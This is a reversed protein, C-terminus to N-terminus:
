YRALGERSAPAISPEAQYLSLFSFLLIGSLFHMVAPRPCPHILHLPLHTHTNDWYKFLHGLLLFVSPITYPSFGGLISCPHHFLSSLTIGLCSPSLYSLNLHLSFAQPGYGTTPSYQPNSQHLIHASALSDPSDLTFASDLLSNGCDGPILQHM